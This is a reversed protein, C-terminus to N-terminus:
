HSPSRTAKTSAIARDLKAQDVEKVMPKLGDIEGLAWAIDPEMRTLWDGGMLLQRQKRFDREFVRPVLSKPALPLNGHEKGMGDWYAAFRRHLFAAQSERPAATLAFVFIEAHSFSILTDGFKLNIVFVYRVDTLGEFYTSVFHWYQCHENLVVREGRLASALLFTELDTGKEGERM